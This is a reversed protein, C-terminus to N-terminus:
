TTHLFVIEPWEEKNFILIFLEPKNQYSTADM